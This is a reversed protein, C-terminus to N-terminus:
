QASASVYVLPHLGRARAGLTRDRSPRVLLAFCATSVALDPFDLYALAVTTCAVAKTVQKDNSVTRRAFVM